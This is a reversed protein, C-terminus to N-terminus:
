ASPLPVVLAPPRLRPFLRDRLRTWARWADALPLGALRVANRLGEIPTLASGAFSKGHPAMVVRDKGVTVAMRGIRYRGPPAGAPGVADTTFVLRRPGLLRVLTSLVFAPLHIGDPIVTGELAPIALTRWIVNDHRHMEAPCGNGLHTVLTAGAAAAAQLEALSADTHGLAVAVGSRVLRRVFAPSGKWEPALTVLRLHGGAARELREFERPDPPRIQERAHGGEYGARPSLWPGELHIGPIASRLRASRGLFGAVRRVQAELAKPPATVITLLFHSCGAARLAGAAHELADQRLDPDQFDVGAFGNVQPDFLAPGVAFARAEGDAVRIAEPPPGGVPRGTLADFCRAATRNPLPRSTYCVSLPPPRPGSDPTYEPHM